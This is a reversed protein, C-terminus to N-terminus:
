NAEATTDIAEPNVTVDGEGGSPARAERHRQRAERLALKQEMTATGAAKAAVLEEELRVMELEAELEETSAM